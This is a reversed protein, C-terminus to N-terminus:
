IYQIGANSIDGNWDKDIFRKRMKEAMETAQADNDATLYYYMEGDHFHVSNETFFEYFDEKILKIKAKKTCTALYPTKNSKVISDLPDLEIEKIDPSDTVNFKKVYAEAKEMSSFVGVLHHSDYQGIHLTFLKM